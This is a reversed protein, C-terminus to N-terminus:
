SPTVGRGWGLALEVGLVDFYNDSVMYVAVPETQDSGAARYELKDATFAALDSLSRASRYDLYDAYSVAGDTASAAVRVLRDPDRVPLRKFLLADILGLAATKVGIRTCLTSM